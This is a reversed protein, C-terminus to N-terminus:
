LPLYLVKDEWEGEISGKALLLIDDVARGISVTNRVAVVGPMPHGADVRAYAYGVLTAVDHTLMVRGEQAAWALITPDDAGLLGVDQVRVVDLSAEHYWLGRLINNDFNEDALFRPM